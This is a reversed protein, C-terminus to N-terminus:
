GLLTDKCITPEWLVCLLARLISHRLASAFAFAKPVQYCKGGLCLSTHVGAEQQGWPARGIGCCSLRPLRPTRGAAGGLREREVSTGWLGSLTQLAAVRGQQSPWAVCFGMRQEGTGVAVRRCFAPAEGAAARDHVTASSSARAVQEVPVELMEFITKMRAQFSSLYKLFKRSLM